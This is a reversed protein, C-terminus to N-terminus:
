FLEQGEQALVVPQRLDNRLIIFEDHELPEEIVTRLDAEEAGSSLALRVGLHAYIM